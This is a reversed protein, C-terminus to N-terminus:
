RAELQHKQYWKVTSTKLEAIERWDDAKESKLKEFLEMAKDNRDLKIHCQAAFYKAIPSRPDKPFLEDTRLYVALSNEFQKIQYYSDALFFISNVVNAPVADGDIILNKDLFYVLGRRLVPASETYREQRYFVPGIELAIRRREIDSDSLKMAEEFAILSKETNGRKQEIKGRMKYHNLLDRRTKYNDFFYAQTKEARYLDDMELYTETLEMFLEREGTVSRNKRGLAELYIAIALDSREIERYARAVMIAITDLDKQTLPFEIYAQYLAIEGLYEGRKHLQKYNNLVLENFRKRQFPWCRWGKHRRMLEVIYIYAESYDELMEYEWMIRIIVERGVVPAEHHIDLETYAHIPFAEKRTRAQFERSKLEALHAAPSDPWRRSVVNFLRVADEFRGENFYTDGLRLTAWTAAFHDPYDRIIREFAEKADGFRHSLLRIEGLPLIQGVEFETGEAFRSFCEDVAANASRIEGKRAKIIAESFCLKKQASEPLGGLNGLDKSIKEADELRDELLDLTLIGLKFYSDLDPDEAAGKELITEAHTLQGSNIYNYGLLLRARSKIEQTKAESEAVYLVKEAEEIRTLDGLSIAFLVEGLLLMTESWLNGPERQLNEKTRAVAAEFAGIEFLKVAALYSKGAEEGGGVKRYDIHPLVPSSDVLLEWLPLIPPRPFGLPRGAKLIDISIRQPSVERNHKFQFDVPLIVLLLQYDEASKSIVKIAVFHRSFQKKLQEILDAPHQKIYLVLEGANEGLKLNYSTKKNVNIKLTALPSGDFAHCFVPLALMATLLITASTLRLHM